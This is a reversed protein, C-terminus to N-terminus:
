QEINNLDVNLNDIDKLLQVKSDVDAKMRAFFEKNPAQVWKKGRGGIYRIYVRNGLSEHMSVFDQFYYVDDSPNWRDIEVPSRGDAYEIKITSLGPKGTYNKTLDYQRYLDIWRKLEDGARTAAEQTDEKYNLWKKYDKGLTIKKREEELKLKDEHSIRGSKIHNEIVKVQLKPNDAIGLFRFVEESDDEFSDFDPFFLADPVKLDNGAQNISVNGDEDVSLKGKRMLRSAVIFGTELDVVGNEHPDFTTRKYEETADPQISLRGLITDTIERSAKRYEDFSANPNNEIWAMTLSIYDLGADQLMRISKEDPILKTPNNPDDMMIILGSRLLSEQMFTNNSKDIENFGQNQKPARFKLSSFRVLKDFESDDILQNVRSTFVNKLFNEQGGNITEEDELLSALRSFEKSDKKEPSVFSEVTAVNRSFAAMQEPSYNYNKMLVSAANVKVADKEEATSNPNLLVSMMPGFVQAAEDEGFENTFRKYLSLLEFQQSLPLDKVAVMATKISDGKAAANTLASLVKDYTNQKNISNVKSQAAEDQLFRAVAAQQISEAELDSIYKGTKTKQGTAIDVTEIQQFLENGDVSVSLLDNIQDTIEEVSLQGGNKSNQEIVSAIIIPRIEGPTMGHQFAGSILFKREQDNAAQLLESGFATAIKEKRQKDRATKHVELLDNKFKDMMPSVAFLQDPSLKEAFKSFSEDMWDSVKDLNEQSKLASDTSYQDTLSRTYHRFEERATLQNLYNMRWPNDEPKIQGSAVAANLDDQNKIKLKLMDSQAQAMGQINKMEVYNRSFQAMEPVLSKLSSALQMLQDGKGVDARVEQPAFVDVPRAAPNLPVRSM